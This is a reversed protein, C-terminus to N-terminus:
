SAPSAKFARDMWAGDATGSLLRPEDLAWYRLRPKEPDPAVTFRFLSEVGLERFVAGVKASVEDPSVFAAASSLYPWDQFGLLYFFTARIESFLNEQPRVCNAFFRQMEPVQESPRELVDAIRSAYADLQLQDVSGHRHRQIWRSCVFHYFDVCPDVSYELEAQIRSAKRARVNAPM